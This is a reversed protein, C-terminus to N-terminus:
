ETLVVSQMANIIQILVPVPVDLGTATDVAPITGTAQNGELMVKFGDSTTHQSSANIDIPLEGTFTVTGSNYATIIVTLKNICIPVGNISSTPSLNYVVTFITPPNTTVICNNVAIPKM